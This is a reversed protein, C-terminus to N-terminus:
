GEFTLWKIKICLGTSFWQRYICILMPLLHLFTFCIWVNTVQQFKYYHIKTTLQTSKLDVLLYHTPHRYLCKLNLWPPFVCGLTLAGIGYASTRSQIFVSAAQTGAKTRSQKRVWTRRMGRRMGRGGSLAMRMATSQRGGHACCVSKRLM